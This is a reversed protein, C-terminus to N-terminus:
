LNENGRKKLEEILQKVKQSEGKKGLFIADETEVILMDELGITSILRKSGLILCNKTDIDLINGIKVNLNDDKDLMEYVSDWCGIDTWHLNLPFVICHRTKEMLAYDISIDPLEPFGELMQRYSGQLPAALLPCHTQLEEVFTQITFLFIGSNWLYSGENLFRQAMELSPKEVFQDVNFFIRGRKSSTKIYGYGTEPKCPTAGFVIVSGKKSEAEAEPLLSLFSDEPAMFHDSAAVIFSEEHSIQLHEQMYKVALAIAPGTNKRHPEVLIHKELREDIERLQTKIPECYEHNTLILFADVTFKKLFRRITMQLLTEENGFRLFQKPLSRRSSPWLRTGSGGALIVIKM